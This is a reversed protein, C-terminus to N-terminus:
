FAMSTEAEASPSSAPVVDEHKKGLARLLSQSIGGGPARVPVPAAPAPLVAQKKRRLLELLKVKSVVPALTLKSPGAEQRLLARLDSIRQSNPNEDRVQRFAGMASLLGASGAAAALWPSLQSDLVNTVIGSTKNFFHDEAAKMRAHLPIDEEAPQDQLVNTLRSRLHEIDGRLQKKRARDILADILAYGGIAGATGLAGRAAGGMASTVDGGFDSWAATKVDQGQRELTLAEEPTVEVPLETEASRLPRVTDKRQQMLHKILRAGMGVGLGALPAYMLYSPDRSWHAM